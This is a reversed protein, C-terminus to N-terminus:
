HEQGQLLGQLRHGVLVSAGSNGQEEYDTGETCLATVEDDSLIARGEQVAAIFCSRLQGLVNESSGLLAEVAGTVPNEYEQQSPSASVSFVGSM